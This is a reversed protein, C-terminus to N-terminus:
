SPTEPVNPSEITNIAVDASRGPRHQIEVRDSALRSLILLSTRAIDTPAWPSGPFTLPESLQLLIFGPNGASAGTVRAALTAGALNHEIRIDIPFTTSASFNSDLIEITTDGSTITDTVYVDENHSPIWFGKQRGKISHLWCRLTWLEARTRRHWAVAFSRDAATTVPTIVLGGAGDMEETERSIADRVGGILEVSDTVIPFRVSGWTPYSPYSLGAGCTPYLDETVDFTFGASAHVYRGSNDSIATERDSALPETMLGLRMPVVTANEYAAITAEVEVYPSPTTVVDTITCAEWIRNNLQWVLLMGGAVYAPVMAPDIAFVTQGLMVDGVDELNPWDPVWVQTGGSLQRALGVANAFDLSHLMYKHQFGMRPLPRHCHRQETSGCRIVETHWELWEIMDGDPRFPWVFYVRGVGSALAKMASAAFTGATIVLGAGTATAPATSLSGAGTVGEVGVLGNGSAITSASLAAGTAAITVTGAGSAIVAMTSVVGTGTVDEDGVAGSGQATASSSEALGTGQVTEIGVSSATTAAASPFGTGQVAEIGAASVTASTASSAGTGAVTEQGVGQASAAAAVSGGAGAVIASGSAAVIVAAGDIASTGSIAVIAAGDVTAATASIAGTGTVSEEGVVGSGQATAAASTPACTGQMTETGTGSVTAAECAPTGVADIAQQGSGSAEAAVATPEGAAQCVVASSGSATSATAAAAGTGSMTETGTAAVTAPEVAPAGSADVRETGTAAAEAATTQPAGTGQSLEQGSASVTAATTNAAGSGQLTETGSGSATGAAVSPAGTGPVTETGAGSATAATASPSGTGTVDSSVEGWVGLSAYYSASSFGTGAPDPFTFSSFTGSKYRYTGGSSSRRFCGSASGNVALWYYTGSVIDCASVTLTNWGSVVAQQTNNYGLRSGPEGSSDAYVAVKVYGSAASWVRFETAGTKSQSAQFRSLTFYSASASTTNETTTGVLLQAAM